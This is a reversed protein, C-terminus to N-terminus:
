VLGAKAKEATIKYLGGRKGRILIPMKWNRPKAGVITYRRPKKPNLIIKRGLDSPSLGYKTANRRFDEEIQKIKPDILPSSTQTVYPGNPGPPSLQITIVGNSLIEEAKDVREYSGERLRQVFERAKGSLRYGEELSHQVDWTVSTEWRNDAVSFEFWVKVVKLLTETGTSVFQDGVEVSLIEAVSFKEKSFNYSTRV